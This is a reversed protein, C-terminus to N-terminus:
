SVKGRGESGALRASQVTSFSLMRVAASPLGILLLFGMTVIVYLEAIQLSGANSIVCLIVFLAIAGAQAFGAAYHQLAAEVVVIIRVISLAVAGVALISMLKFDLGRIAAPTEQIFPITAWLLGAAAVAMGTAVAIGKIVSLRFSRGGARQDTVVPLVVQAVAFTATIIAKPLLASAAYAGLEARSLLWYGVLLDINNVLIFLSYSMVMPIEQEVRLSISDSSIISRFRAARAFWPLFAAIAFASGVLIGAIGAWVKTFLFLGGLSFAFQAGTNTIWLASARGFCLMSQLSSRMIEAVVMALVTIPILLVVPWGDIGLWPTAVGLLAGGAIVLPSARFCLRILRWTVAVVRDRGATAGLEAFRRALVLTVAMMPSMVINTTLVAAYFLGFRETDLIRDAGWLLAYNFSHGVLFAITVGGSRRIISHRL